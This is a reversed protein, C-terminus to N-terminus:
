GDENEEELCDDELECSDIEYYDKAVVVFYDNIDMASIEIFVLDRGDASMIYKDPIAEIKVANGFSSISDKAAIEGNDDYAIAM